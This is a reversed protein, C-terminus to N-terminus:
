SDGGGFTAAMTSRERGEGGTISFSGLSRLCWSVSTADVLSRLAEGHRARTPSRLSHCCAPLQLKPTLQPMAASM